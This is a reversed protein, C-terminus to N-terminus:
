ATVETGIQLNVTEKYIGCSKVLEEHTGIGVLKGMNFVLIKNLNKITGIRQSVIFVMSGKLHESLSRRLRADTQFDLKSFSDDFVYLSSKKIVARAIALRQRQGGSINGGAQSLLFNFGKEKIFDYMQSIKVANLLQEESAAKNGLKLNSAIDGSFLMDNQPVYGVAKRLESKKINKADTGDILIKGEYPEYFGMLLKILTSKGSGTTGIIGVSEGPKVSFNINRLVYEKAGPYKFSVNKFEINEISNIAINEQDEAKYNKSDKNLVEFVREVSVLAKPIIAFMISLMLFASIVMISYQLFAMVDGVNMELRSIAGAGMWIVAISIINMFITLVPSVTAIVRGVFLSTDTLKANSKQFKDHEFNENGFTRIILAGTLREKIVLNFKDALLQLVKIKPVILKFCIAMIGASVVAGLAIVWSMSASKKLAMIVGGAMMIPPIIIQTVTLLVSKVHEVDNTTRTILSSVTFKDMETYSFDMIREFVDRRIDSSISSSMKSILYNTLITFIIMILTVALMILGINIIYSTQNKLIEAESEFGTLLSLDRVGRQKIGIDVIDSMLSPLFLSCVQSVTISLFIFIVAAKYPKLYKLFNKIYIHSFKM